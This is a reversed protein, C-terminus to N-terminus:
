TGSLFDELISGVNEVNETYIFGYLANCREGEDDNDYYLLPDVPNYPGFAYLMEVDSKSFYDKEKLSEWKKKMDTIREPAIPCGTWREETFIMWDYQLSIAQGHLVEETFKMVTGWYRLREPTEQQFYDGLYESVRTPIPIYSKEVASVNVLKSLEQYYGDHIKQIERIFDMLQELIDMNHGKVATLWKQKLCCQSIGTLNLKLSKEDTECARDFAVDERGCNCSM